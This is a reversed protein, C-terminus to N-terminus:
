PGYRVGNAADRAAEAVGKGFDHVAQVAATAAQDLTPVSPEAWIKLTVKGHPSTIEVEVEARLSAPMGGKNPEYALPHVNVVRVKYETM